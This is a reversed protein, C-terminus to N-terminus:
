VKDFELHGIPLDNICGSATNGEIECTVVTGPRMMHFIPIEYLYTAFAEGRYTGSDTEIEFRRFAGPETIRVAKIEESRDGLTISGGAGQAGRVFIVGVEPGRLSAYTFPTTFRPRTQIQEHFHGRGSISFEADGLTVDAHTSGLVESRGPLSQAGGSGTEFRASVTLPTVGEGHDYDTGSHMMAEAVATVTEPAFRDGTRAIAFGNAADYSVIDLTEDVTHESCRVEHDTFSQVHGHHFLHLWTWATGLEPFRCVRTILGADGDDSVLDVYAAESRTEVEWLESEPVM